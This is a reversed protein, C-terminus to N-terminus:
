AYLDGLSVRVTATGGTANVEVTYTGAKANTINVNYTGSQTYRHQYEGIIQGTPRKLTVLVPNAASAGSIQITAHGFLSWDPSYITFSGSGNVTISGSGSIARTSAMSYNASVENSSNDAAQASVGMCFMTATEIVLSLIKKVRNIKM